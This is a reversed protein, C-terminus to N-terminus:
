QERGMPIWNILVSDLTIISFNAPTRRTTQAFKEIQIV